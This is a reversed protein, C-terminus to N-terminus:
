IRELLFICASDLPEITSVEVNTLIFPSHLFQSIRVKGKSSYLIEGSVEPGFSDALLIYLPHPLLHHKRPSPLM